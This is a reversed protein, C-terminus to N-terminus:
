FNINLKLDRSFVGHATSCLPIIHVLCLHPDTPQGSLLTFRSRQPSSSAIDVSGKWVTSFQVGTQECLTPFYLKSEITRSNEYYHFRAYYSLLAEYCYNSPSLLVLASSHFVSEYKLRMKSM